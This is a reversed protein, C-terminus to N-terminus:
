LDNPTVGMRRLAAIAKAVATECLQWARQKTVGLAEAIDDYTAGHPHQRIFSQVQEETIEPRPM